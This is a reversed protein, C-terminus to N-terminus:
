NKKEYYVVPIKYIAQLQESKEKNEQFTDPIAPYKTDGSYSQEIKTLYIGEIADMTQQYVDGGGMIFVNTHEANQKADELSHVIKVQDSKLSRSLVLNQRNPLPKCGLSEFTKRGMIVTGNTTTAKFFRLDQAYKPWPMRNDKGIVGEGCEANGSAAVIHFYHHDM